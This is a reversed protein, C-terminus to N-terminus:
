DAFAAPDTVHGVFFIAGTATDRILFTFPRDVIFSVPPEEVSEATEGVVATVAAAETGQESVDIYTRHRVESIFLPSIDAIGSFDASLGFPTPGGLDALAPGLGIEHDFRFKPLRLMVERTSLSSVLSRYRNADPLSMTPEGDAMMVIMSAAGGLYPLEVTAWGDVSAYRIYETQNMAETELPAAGVRRFTMPQTDSPSFENEWRAKFYAANILVFRTEPSLGEPPVITPILGNTKDSAWRNLENAAGAPNAEFGVFRPPAGYYRELRDVWAQEAVLSSDLWSSSAIRLEYPNEGSAAADRMGIDLAFLAAHRDSEDLEASLARRLEELTAGEAGASAMSLALRVSHPSVLVNEGEAVEALLSFAFDNGSEAVREVDAAPTTAAREILAPDVPAPTVDGFDDGSCGRCGLTTLALAVATRLITSKM